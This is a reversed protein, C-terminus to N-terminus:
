SSIHRNCHGADYVLATLIEVQVQTLEKSVQELKMQHKYLNPANTDKQVKAKISDYDSLLTKRKGIKEITPSINSLVANLPRICRNLVTARLAPQIVNSVDATVKSFLHATDQLTSPQQDSQLSFYQNLADCLVTGSAAVTALADLYTELSEKIKRVENVQNEWERVKDDFEADETTQYGGVAHGAQRLGEKVLHRTSKLLKQM